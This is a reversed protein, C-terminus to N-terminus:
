SSGEASRDEGQHEQRRQVGDPELDLRRCAVPLGHRRNLHLRDCALSWSHTCTECYYARAGTAVDGRKMGRVKAHLDREDVGIRIWAADARKAAANRRLGQQVRGS